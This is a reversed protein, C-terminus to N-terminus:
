VYLEPASSYKLLVSFLLHLVPLFLDPLNRFPPNSVLSISFLFSLVFYFLPLFFPPLIPTHLDAAAETDSLIDRRHGSRLAPPLAYRDPIGPSVSSVSAERTYSTRSFAASPPPISHPSCFFLVYNGCLFPAKHIHFHLM